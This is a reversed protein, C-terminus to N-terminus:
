KTTKKRREEKEQKKKRRGGEKKRTGGDKKRRVEDKEGWGEGCDWWNWSALSAIVCLSALEM